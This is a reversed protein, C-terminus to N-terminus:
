ASDTPHRTPHMLLVLHVQNLFGQFQAQTGDFKTPLNIKPEKHPRQFSSDQQHLSLM